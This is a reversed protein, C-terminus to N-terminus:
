IITGPAFLAVSTDVKTIERLAKHVNFGGGGFTNRGWIDIGTYIDYKRSKSDGNLGSQRLRHQNWTYNTFIGDCVSFFMENRSNLQDQWKLEGTYIVSDYWILLSGPIEYHLMTRFYNLFRQLIICHISSSLKSEVNFLYGDFGYYKAVQVLKDAYFPCFDCQTSFLLPNYAPGYILKLIELEGPGWEVIFTGLCSVGQRHCSETWQRPPITVREHSFYCFIDIYHLFQCHYVDTGESGEIIADKKYGGAMDHCLLVKRARSETLNQIPIRCRNLPNLILNQLEDVTFIPRSLSM